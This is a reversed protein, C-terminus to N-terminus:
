RGVLAKQVMERKSISLFWNKMGDRKQQETHRKGDAIKGESFVIRMIDNASFLLPVFVGVPTCTRAQIPLLSRVNSPAYFVAFKYPLYILLTIVLSRNSTEM